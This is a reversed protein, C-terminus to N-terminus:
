ALLKTKKENGGNEKLKMCMKRTGWGVYSWNSSCYRLTILKRKERERSVRVWEPFFQSLFTVSLHLSHLRYKHSSRHHHHSHQCTLLEQKSPHYMFRETCFQLIKMDYIGLNLKGWESVWEVDNSAKFRRTHKQPNMIIIIVVLKRVAWSVSTCNFPCWLAFTINVSSQHHHHHNPKLVLLLEVIMTRMM